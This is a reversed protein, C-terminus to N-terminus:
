LSFFELPKYVAGTKLLISEYLIIESVHAKQLEVGRYMELLDKLGSGQSLSRIRGITLHPRFPRKELVIGSEELCRLVLLNLGTLRGSPEIGAWLVNPDSLSKFVGAGGIVLDFSGSGACEKRLSYKLKNIVPEETDGLFTLTIHLNEPETWKISEKRLAGQISSIMNMLAIEPNIRIAVFIRKM